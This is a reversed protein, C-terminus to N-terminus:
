CEARGRRLAFAVRYVNIALKGENGGTNAAAQLLMNGLTRKGAGPQGVL